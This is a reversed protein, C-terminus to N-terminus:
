KRRVGNRLEDSANIAAMCVRIESLAKRIEENTKAFDAHAIDNGTLKSTNVAMQEKMAGQQGMIFGGFTIVGTFMMGGFVGSFWQLTHFKGDVKTELTFVKEVTSEIRELQGSHEQCLEKRDECDTSHRTTPATM